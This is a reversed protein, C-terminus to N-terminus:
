SVLVPGTLMVYSLPCPSGVIGPVCYTLAVTISQPHYDIAYHKTFWTHHVTSMLMFTPALCTCTCLCMETELSASQTLSAVYGFQTSFQAPLPM